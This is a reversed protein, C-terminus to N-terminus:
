FDAQLRSNIVFATHRSKLPPRIIQADITLHLAPTIQINYFAEFAHEFKNFAVKQMMLDRRLESSIHTAAYGIGWQDYYRNRPGGYSGIGISYFQDIVNRDKPAWGARGFLLIGVPPLYNRYPVNDNNRNVWVYQDFNMLWAYNNCKKPISITGINEGILHREDIDYSTIPKKSHAYILRYNGSLNECITPSFTYQICYTTNGNFATDSGSKNAKGEADAIFFLIQNKKNPIWVPLLGLTTYKTFTYIIPNNVLGSYLFQFRSNNAFNTADIPGTADIKGVRFVFQDSLFQALVVESLTTDSKGPTPVRSRSNAALLSGVDDNISDKVTWSSEAHLLFAGRSWIGLKGTDILLWYEANGNYRLYGHKAGGTLNSGLFQFLTTDVYIGHNALLSRFGNPLGLLYSRELINGYITNTDGYFKPYHRLSFLYGQDISEKKKKISSKNTNRACSKSILLKANSGTICIFLSLIFFKRSM